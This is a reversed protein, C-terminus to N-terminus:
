RGYKCLDVKTVQHCAALTKKPRGRPVRGEVTVIMCSKLWNDNGMREVQELWRLRGM